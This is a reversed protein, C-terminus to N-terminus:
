WGDFWGDRWRRSWRQTASRRPFQADPIQAVAPFEPTPSVVEAFQRRVPQGRPASRFKRTPSRRVSGCVYCVDDDHLLGPSSRRLPGGSICLRLRAIRSIYKSVWDGDESRRLTAVRSEKPSVRGSKRQNCALLSMKVDSSFTQVTNKKWFAARGGSHTFFWFVSFSIYLFSRTFLFPPFFCTLIYCGNWTVILFWCNFNIM